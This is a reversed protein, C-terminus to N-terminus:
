SSPVLPTPRPGDGRRDPRGGALPHGAPQPPHGAVPSQPSSIRRGERRPARRGVPGDRGRRAAAAAPPEVAASAASAPPRTGPQPPHGCLTGGDTRPGARYRPPAGGPGKQHGRRPWGHRWPGGGPARARAAGRTGSHADRSWFAGTPNGRRGTAAATSGQQWSFNGRNDTTAAMQPAATGPMLLLPSSLM